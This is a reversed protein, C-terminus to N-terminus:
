RTKLRAVIDKYKAADRIVRCDLERVIRWFIDNEDEGNSILTAKITVEEEWHVGQYNVLVGNTM